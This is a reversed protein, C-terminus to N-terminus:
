SPFNNLFVVQLLPTFSVWNRLFVSSKAAIHVAGSFRGGSSVWLQTELSTPCKSLPIDSRDVLMAPAFACIQNM